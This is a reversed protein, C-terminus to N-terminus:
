RAAPGPTSAAGSRTAPGHRWAPRKRSRARRPSNRPKARKSRVPLSRGRRSVTTAAASSFARSSTVIATAVSPLQDERNTLAQLGQPPSWEPRGYRAFDALAFLDANSRTFPGGVPLPWAGDAWAWADNAAEDPAGDTLKIGDRLGTDRPLLLATPNVGLAIALAVLDDADVRRDGREIRSLGLTPIPRGLERLRDSLERYSLKRAQRLETLNKIVYRGVPGLPVRPDGRPATDDPPPM